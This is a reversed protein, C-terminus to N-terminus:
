GQEQINKITEIAQINLNEMLKVSTELTSTKEKVFTEMTTKFKKLDEKQQDDKADINHRIENMANDFRDVEGQQAAKLKEVTMTQANSQQVLKLMQQKLQHLQSTAPSSVENKSLKLKKMSRELSQIRADLAGMTDGGDVLSSSPSQPGSKAGGRKAQTYDRRIERKLEKNEKLLKANEDTLQVVTRTLSKVTDRLITVHGLDSIEDTVDDLDLELDDEKGYSGVESPLSTSSEKAGLRGGADGTGQDSTKKKVGAGPKSDSKKKKKRRKKKSKDQASKDVPEENQNEQKENGDEEEEEEEEELNDESTPEPTDEPLTTDAM